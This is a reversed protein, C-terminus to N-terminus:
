CLHNFLKAHISYCEWRFFMVAFADRLPLAESGARASFESQGVVTGALFAGLAMSVDFFHASGVAIGLAITLVSLTFLERSHTDAVKNLLWPLVRSGAVM